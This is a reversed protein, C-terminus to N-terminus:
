RFSKRRKRRVPLKNENADLRLRAAGGLRVLKRGPRVSRWGGGDAGFRLLWVRDVEALVVVGVIRCAEAVM